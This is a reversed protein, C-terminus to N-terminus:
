AATTSMEDIRDLYDPIESIDNLVIDALPKLTEAEAPGTLVAITKMGAARGALLDHRSDGVMACEGPRLRMQDAFAYCPGPHPKSGYGSDFGSVFDFLELINESALHARAPAIADNTAVGIKLGRAKLNELTQVLDRVSAQPATAALVNMHSILSSPNSGPLVPLMVKAIDEPTGAIVPSAKDFTHTSLDFGIASALHQAVNPDGGSLDTLLAAM